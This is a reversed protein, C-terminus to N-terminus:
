LWTKSYKYKTRSWDFQFVTQTIEFQTTCCFQVLIFPWYQLMLAQESHDKCKYIQRIGEFLLM